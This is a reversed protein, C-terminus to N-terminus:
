NNVANVLGMALKERVATDQQWESALTRLEHLLADARRTDAGANNVANVLGKALRERVAVDQQWESALTRLEDLLKDARLVDAGANNFANFLGKALNERVAADQPWNTALGRLAALRDDTRPHNTFEGTLGAAFLARAHAAPVLPADKARTLADLVANVVGDAGHRTLAFVVDTQAMAWRIRAVTDTPTHSVMQTLLPHFTTVGGFNAALNALFPVPDGRQWALDLIRQATHIRVAPARIAGLHNLVYLGGVFDPELKTFEDAYAKGAMISWRRCATDGDVGCRDLEPALDDLLDPPCRGAVTAVALLMRDAATVNQDQWHLDQRKLFEATVTHHDLRGPTGAALALGLLGAFLPRSLEPDAAIADTVRAQAAADLPAGAYRGAVAMVGATDLPGLNLATSDGQWAIDARQRGRETHDIIAQRVSFESDPPLTDLLILRVPSLLAHDDPRTALNSILDRVTDASIGAYDIVLVTPRPARWKAYWRETLWERQTLFGVDALGIDDLARLPALAELALRSKGMGAPGSVVTWLLPRPAALFTALAALAPDRGVLDAWREWYVLSDEPAATAKPWSPHPARDQDFEAVLRDIHTTLETRLAALDDVLADLVPLRSGLHDFIASAQQNLDALAAQTATASQAAIHAQGLLVVRFFREDTKLAEKVFEGMAGALGGPVQPDSGDLLALLGDSLPQWAPKAAMLSSVLLTHVQTALPAHLATPDNGAAIQAVARMDADSIAEAALRAPSLATANHRVLDLFAQTDPGGTVAAAYRRICHHVASDLASLIAREIDHNIPLAGGARRRRIIEAVAGPVPSGLKDIWSALINGGLGGALTLLAGTATPALVPAAFAGVTTVATLLAAGGALAKITRVTTGSGDAM